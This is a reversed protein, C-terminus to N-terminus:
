PLGAPTANTQGITQWEFIAKGWVPAPLPVPRFRLSRAKDLANTDADALGSRGLLRAAIVQGASDVAIQVVSNSLLEASPWARLGAPANLQRGALEGQIEFASQTRVPESTLSAPWPEPEAGSPDALGFPVPSEARNLLPFNTGLGNTDIKLWEPAETEGPVEYQQAPPSLWARESFGHLSALPFVAPDEVFFIRALQDANLPTGLLRLHVPAPAVHSARHEGEAFLVILGAQAAFLAGAVSWFRGRTWGSLESPPPNM